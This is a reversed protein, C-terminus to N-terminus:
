SMALRSLRDADALDQPRGVARKNDILHRLSITPVDLDDVRVSVHDRWATDFDVGDISTMLDIRRPSVGLQVVSDPLHLDELKLRDLPAGFEEM